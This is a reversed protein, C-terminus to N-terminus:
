HLLGKQKLLERETAALLVLCSKFEMPWDSGDPSMFCAATFTETMDDLPDTISKIAEALAKDKSQDDLTGGTTPFSKVAAHSRLAEDFDPGLEDPNAAYHTILMELPENVVSLYAFMDRRKLQRTVLGELTDDRCPARFEFHLGAYFGNVVHVLKRQTAPSLAEFRDATVGEDRLAIGVIAMLDIDEIGYYEAYRIKLATQVLPKLNRLALDQCFIRREPEMLTFRRYIDDFKLM